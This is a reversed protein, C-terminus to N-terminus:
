GLMDHTAGGMLFERLRSRGYAGMVVLDCSAATAYTNLVEAVRRGDSDLQTIQADVAHRDLFVALESGMVEAAPMDVTVIEVKGADRILQMAGRVARMAEASGNWAIQITKGISESWGGPIILVPAEGSFLVTELIRTRTEQLPQDKPDTMVVLDAFRALKCVEQGVHDYFCFLEHVDFRLGSDQLKDTVAAVSEALRAQAAEILGAYVGAVGGGYVTPPYSPDLEFALVTLHADQQSALAIVADFREASGETGDWVAVMSTISM